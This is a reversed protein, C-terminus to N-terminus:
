KGAQYTPLKLLARVAMLPMQALPLSHAHLKALLLVVQIICLQQVLNLDFDLIIM